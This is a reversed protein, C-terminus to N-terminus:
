VRVVWSPRELSDDTREPSDRAILRCVIVDFSSRLSRCSARINTSSASRSSRGSTSPLTIAILLMADWPLAPLIASGVPPSALPSVVHPPVSNRADREAISETPGLPRLARIKCRQPRPPGLPV